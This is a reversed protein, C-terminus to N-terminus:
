NYADENIWKQFEKSTIDIRLVDLYGIDKSWDDCGVSISGSEIHFIVGKTVSKGSPDGQHKFNFDQKQANAFIESIENSIERMKKYCNNINKPYDLFGAIAYIKYNPDNKKYSIQIADYTKFIKFYEFESPIFKDDNYYNQKKDKIEKKSFYDLASDGISIGEIQFENINDAKVWSQISIIFILFTLFKVM